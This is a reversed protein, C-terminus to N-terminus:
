QHSIKDKKIFIETHNNVHFNKIAYTQIYVTIM